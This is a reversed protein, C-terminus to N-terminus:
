RVRKYAGDSISTRPTCMISGSLNVSLDTIQIIVDDTQDTKYGGKTPILEANIDCVVGAPFPKPNYADPMWNGWLRIMNKGNNVYNLIALSEQDFKGTANSYVKAQLYGQLEANRENVYKTCRNAAASDTQIKGTRGDVMCSNYGAVFMRQTIPVFGKLPFSANVQKYIEGMKADAADLEPTACIFKELPKSAKGCDFSAANAIHSAGLLSVVLITLRKYNTMFRRGIRSSSFCLRM